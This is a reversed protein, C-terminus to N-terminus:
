MLNFIIFRDFNKRSVAQTTVLTRPKEKESDPNLSDIKFEIKEIAKTLDRLEKQKEKLLTQQQKLYDESSLKEPQCALALVAILLLPTLYKM